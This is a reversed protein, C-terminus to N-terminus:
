QRRGAFPSRSPPALTLAFPAEVGRDDPLADFSITNIQAPTVDAASLTTLALWTLLCRM